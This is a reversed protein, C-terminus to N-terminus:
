SHCSSHRSPARAMGGPHSLCERYLELLRQNLLECDYEAEIRERGSRGMAAATEPQDALFALREALTEVDREPVLFGSTGDDVLEPIGSHLTSVVPLGTAMAEKLSNPIGEQDGSRATVSPAVLVDAERLAEVVQGHDQDGSFRLSDGLGLKEGLSELESRLPGDGVIRYAVKRGSDKLAAVARIGYEVGKKEVLRAVTLLRFPGGSARSREVYEFNRLDIGSRHVRIKGPDCGAEILRERFVECVPLCLDAAEFLPGYGHRVRHGTLDWGRFSVVLRGPLAGIERLTLAKHGLQGFQCHVIDRPERRVFATAEHLLALSYAARGYRGVNLARILLGPRRWAGRTAGLNGLIAAVRGLRSGRPQLYHTRSMLDYRDVDLHVADDNGATWAFVDVEVGADLLGTIQNLIFTESLKPFKRVLMAVRMPRSRGSSPATM